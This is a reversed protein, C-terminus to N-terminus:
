AHSAIEAYQEIRGGNMRIVRSCASLTGTRHAILIVTKVGAIERLADMVEAETLADLASTAEDFVILEPEHYLARAIGIRQRQGGSLRVGREGVRTDYGQPLTSIVFDHIRAIRAAREVKAKDIASPALGLAINEALTADTLFIDQPVYGINKQWARRSAADLAVGDILVQGSQPVLLGLVVDVLTTKGAGTRGVIGISDGKNITLSIDHLGIESGPYLYTVHRLELSHTLPLANEAAPADRGKAITALEHQITEVAAASFRITATTNYVAQVAPLMRYGAFAYLSLIPLLSVLSGDMGEQWMVIIVVLIIGGFALAEIAFKPIQALIASSALNTAVVRSGSAFRQLYPEERGMVKLAKIGGLAETATEFRIQNARSREHGSKDLVGRILRYVTLYFGGILASVLSATVPDLVLLFVAMAALVLGSAATQAMPLLARDVFMDVESLINKGLDGTHRNLFFEYPQALYGGLLRCGLSHRRMQVFHNQVYLAFSRVVAALVLLIFAGTGLAVVFAERSAFGGHEFAWALIFHSEILSTDSLVALFPLISAVGVVEFFAMLVMLALVGLSHKQESPTLCGFARRWVNLM